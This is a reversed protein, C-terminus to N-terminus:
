PGLPEYTTSYTIGALTSSECKQGLWHPGMTFTNLGPNTRHCQATLTFDRGEDSREVM